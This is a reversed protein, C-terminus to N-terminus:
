TWVATLLVSGNVSMGQVTINYIPGCYSMHLREPTIQRQYVLKNTLISAVKESQITTLKPCRIRWKLNIKMEKVGMLVTRM